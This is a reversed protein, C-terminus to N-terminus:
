RFCFSAIMVDMGLAVCYAALKRAATLGCQRELTKSDLVHVNQSIQIQFLQQLCPTWRDNIAM